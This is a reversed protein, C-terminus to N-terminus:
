TENGIKIKKQQTGSEVKCKRKHGAKGVNIKESTREALASAARQM